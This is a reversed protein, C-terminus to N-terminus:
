IKEDEILVIAGVQYVRSIYKDSTGYFRKDPAKRSVGALIDKAIALAWAADEAMVYFSKWYMESNNEIKYLKKM